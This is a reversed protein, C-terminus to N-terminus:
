VSVMIKYYFLSSLIHFLLSVLSNLLNLILESKLSDSATPPLLDNSWINNSSQNHVIFVTYSVITTKRKILYFQIYKFSDSLAVFGSNGARHRSHLYKMVTEKYSILVFTNALELVLEITFMEIVSYKTLASQSRCTLINLLSVYRTVDLIIYIQKLRHRVSLPNNSCTTM